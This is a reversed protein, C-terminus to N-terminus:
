LFLAALRPLHRRNEADDDVDWTEGLPQELGQMSALAAEVATDFAEREGIVREYAKVAAYLLGEAGIWGKDEKAMRVVTPVDALSDPDDVARTFVDRGLLALGARFDMFGDDGCGGEILYAANWLPRRYATDLIRTLTADFAVIGPGDLALLRDTVLGILPDDPSDRDDAHEGAEARADEILDWWAREDM